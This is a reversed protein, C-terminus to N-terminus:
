DRTQEEPQQEELGAAVGCRTGLDIDWIHSPSSPFPVCWDSNPSVATVPPFWIVVLRNGDLFCDVLPLPSPPKAIRSGFPLDPNLNAYLPPDGTIVHLLAYTAADWVCASVAVTGDMSFVVTSLKMGNPSWACHRSPWFTPGRTHHPMSLTALLTGRADALRVYFVEIGVHNPAPFALRHSDPSFALSQSSHACGRWEAAIWQPNEADWLIVSDDKSGSAIWRADLSAKLAVIPWDHGAGM